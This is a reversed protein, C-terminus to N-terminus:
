SRVARWCRCGMPIDVEGEAAVSSAAAEIRALERERLDSSMTIMSSYTGALGILQERTMPMVWKVVKGEMGAFPSQPPLELRHRARGDTDGASRNRKGLLEAVWEISRDAGNWIVGLVGGPRLVRCIEGITLEANMWHWASSVTVADLSGSRIPPLEAWGQVASIEPSRSKLIELMRIDPEVAIVDHARRNLQRTLAGTGAGVDVVIGGASQLVWDVATMPPGPRFRDYNEAVSGFSSARVATEPEAM